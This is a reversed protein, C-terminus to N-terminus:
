GSSRQSPPRSPELTDGSMSGRAISDKLRVEGLREITSPRKQAQSASARLEQAEPLALADSSVNTLKSVAKEILSM